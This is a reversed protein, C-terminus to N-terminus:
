VRCKAVGGYSNSVTITNLINNEVIACKIKVVRAKIYLKDPSFQHIIHGGAIEFIKLFFVLESVSTYSLLNQIYGSCFLNGDQM